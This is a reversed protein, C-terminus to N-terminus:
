HKAVFLFGDTLPIPLKPEYGFFHFCHIRIQDHAIFSALGIANAVVLHICHQKVLEEFFMPFNLFSLLSGAQLERLLLSGM